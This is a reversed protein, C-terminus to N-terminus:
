YFYHFEKKVMEVKNAYSNLKKSFILLYLSQYYRRISIMLYLKFEYPITKM